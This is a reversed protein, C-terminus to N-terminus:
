ATKNHTAAALMVTHVYEQIQQREAPSSKKGQLGEKLGRAISDSTVASGMGISHLQEGFTLGFLYSAQESSLPAPEAAGPPPAPPAPHAGAGPAISRWGAGTCASRVLHRILPKM